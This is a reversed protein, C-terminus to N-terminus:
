GGFMNDMVDELYEDVEPTKIDENTDENVDKNPEEYISDSASKLVRKIYAITLGKHDFYNKTLDEITTIKFSKNKIIVKDNEKLVSGTTCNGFTMKFEDNHIAITDTEKFKAIAGDIVVYLPEIKGEVEVNIVNNCPRIIFTRHTKSTNKDEATVIYPNKNWLVYDGIELIADFRCLFIKEDGYTRNNFTADQLSGEIHRGEYMVTLINRNTTVSLYEEFDKRTEELLGGRENNTKYINFMRM